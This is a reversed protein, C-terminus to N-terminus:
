TLVYIEKKFDVVNVCLALAYLRLANHWIHNSHYHHLALRLLFIDPVFFNLAKLGM